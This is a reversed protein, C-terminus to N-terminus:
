IGARSLPLFHWKEYRAWSTKVILLIDTQVLGVTMELIEVPTKKGSILSIQPLLGIRHLCDVLFDIRQM